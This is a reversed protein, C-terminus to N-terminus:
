KIDLFKHLVRKMGSSFALKKLLGKEVWQYGEIVKDDDAVLLTPFLQVRFRTFSHSEEPLTVEIRTKLGLNTQLQVTIEESGKDFYPFEYLDSMIANKEPRRLLVKKKCVIVAVNRFLKEYITKKSNYPLLHANGAAYGECSSMLPCESCKPKKQCVKAGLEILAESHIWSAETPLLTDAIEQLIKLTKPKSIDDDKNYIRSLVRIVNGDVPACKKKFAFSLIANATYPGLGKIEIVQKYEEPFVGNFNEVIYQAGAHLNRARSYYGLGEWAKIVEDRSASALAEITPFQKMWREFYPIVVNVQTQQLMVESVWVAYPSIKKRWPLDRKELLFWKTLACTDFNM